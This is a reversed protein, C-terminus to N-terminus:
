LINNLIILGVFIIGWNKPSWAFVKSGDLPPIPLMNFMALLLNISIAWSRILEGFTNIIFLPRSISFLLALGVNTTAGALSIYANQKKTIGYYGGHIYVAGPALFLLPTFAMLLGLMLGTQWYRFEAWFGYTQAVYKHALEHFIFAIGFSFFMVIFAAVLPSSYLRFTPEARFHFALALVIVFLAIGIHESETKSFRM